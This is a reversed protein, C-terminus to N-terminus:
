LGVSRAAALLAVQRERITMAGLDITQHARRRRQAEAARRSTMMQRQGRMRCANSAWRQRRGRRGNLEAGCGCECIGCTRKEGGRPQMKEADGEGHMGDSGM